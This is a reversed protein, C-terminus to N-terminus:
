TTFPPTWKWVVGLPIRYLLASVWEASTTKGLGPEGIILAKGRGIATMLCLLLAANFRRGNIEMDTRNLYLNDNIYGYLDWVTDRLRRNRSDEKPMM